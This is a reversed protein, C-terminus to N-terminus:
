ACLEPYYERYDVWEIPDFLDYWDFKWGDEYVLRGLGADMLTDSMTYGLYVFTIETETRAVVKATTWELSLGGGRVGEYRYLRGDLELFIPVLATSSKVTIGNEGRTVNEATEVSSMYEDTVRETFVATLADRLEAATQPLEKPLLLYEGRDDFDPLTVTIVPEHEEDGEAPYSLDSVAGDFYLHYYDLATPYAEALIARLARDAETSDLPNDSGEISSYFPFTEAATITTVTTEAVPSVDTETACGCLTLTLLLSLSRTRKKM